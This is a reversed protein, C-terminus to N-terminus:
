ICDYDYNYDPEEEEWDEHILDEDIYFSNLKVEEIPLIDSLFAKCENQWDKTFDEEKEILGDARTIRTDFDDPEYFNGEYYTGALSVESFISFDLDVYYRGDEEYFLPEYGFDYVDGSLEDLASNIRLLFDKEEQEDKPYVFDKSLTYTIHLQESITGKGVYYKSM